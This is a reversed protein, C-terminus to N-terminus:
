VLLKDLSVFASFSIEIISLDCHISLLWEKLYSLNTVLMLRGALKDHVFCTYTAAESTNCVQKYLSSIVRYSPITTHYTYCMAQCNKIEVPSFERIELFSTGSNTIKLGCSLGKTTAWSANGSLRFISTGNIKNEIIRNTNQNAAQMHHM